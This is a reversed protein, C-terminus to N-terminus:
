VIRCGKLFGCDLGEDHVATVIVGVGKVILRLIQTQKDNDGVEM